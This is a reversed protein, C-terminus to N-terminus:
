KTMADPMYGPTSKEDAGGADTSEGETRSMRSMNAAAPTTVDPNPGAVFKVDREDIGRDRLYALAADRRADAGEGPLNLYVTTAATAPATTPATTPTTVTQDSGRALVQDLKARGLSNLENGDFHHPQLTADHRAGAEAHAAAFAHTARNDQPFFENLASRDSECGAGAAAASLLVGAVVTMTKKNCTM